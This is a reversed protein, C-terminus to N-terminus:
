EIENWLNNKFLHYILQGNTAVGFKACIRRQRQRIAAPTPPDALPDEFVLKDPIEKSGYGRAILAIIQLDIENVEKIDALKIPTAKKPHWLIFYMCLFYAIAVLMNIIYNVSYHRYMGIFVQVGFVVACVSITLKNNNLLYISISLMLVFSFNGNEMMFQSVVGLFLMTWAVSKNASIKKNLILLILAPIIFIIIYTFYEETPANTIVCDILNYFSIIILFLPTIHGLKLM